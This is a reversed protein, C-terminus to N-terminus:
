GEFNQSQLCTGGHGAQAGERHYTQSLHHVQPNAKYKEPKKFIMKKIETKEKISSLVWGEVKEMKKPYQPKFELGAGEVVGGTRKKTISIKQSLIKYFQRDL